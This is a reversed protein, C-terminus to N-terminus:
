RATWPSSAGPRTLATLEGWRLGSYAATNAMLEDLDGHLGEALAKGLRDVDAGAPIEAPGVWLPSEGAVAVRPAPLPRGAAQWHVGALRPSTLYGSEIVPRAPQRVSDRAEGSM